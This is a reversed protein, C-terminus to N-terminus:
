RDYRGNRSEAKLTRFSTIRALFSSGDKGSRTGKLNPPLEEPARLPTWAGELGTLAHTSESYVSSGATPRWSHPIADGTCSMTMGSSSRHAVSSWYTTRVLGKLLACLFRAPQEPKSVQQWLVLVEEGM